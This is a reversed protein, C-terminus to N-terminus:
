AAGMWPRPFARCTILMTTGSGQLLMAEFPAWAGDVGHPLWAGAGLDHPLLGNIGPRSRAVSFGKVGDFAVVGNVGLLLEM